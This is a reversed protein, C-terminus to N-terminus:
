ASSRTQSHRRVPCDRMGGCSPNFPPDWSGLTCAAAYSGDVKEIETDGNGATGTYCQLTCVDGERLDSGEECAEELYSTGYPAEPVTCACASPVASSALAALLYGGSVVQM